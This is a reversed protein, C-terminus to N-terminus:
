IVGYVIKNDGDLGRGGQGPDDAAAVKWAWTRSFGIIGLRTM